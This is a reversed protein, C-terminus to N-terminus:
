TRSKKWESPTCHYMKKFATIFSKVNPFGQELACDTLRIDQSRKLQEMVNLLRVNQLYEYFNHGTHEKFLRSLHSSSYNFEEAVSNLSIQEQYHDDIYNVVSKVNNIGKVQRSKAQTDEEICYQGLLRLLLFLQEMMEIQCYEGANESIIGFRKVAERIQRQAEEDQPYTLYIDKKLWTDLFSKSILVTVGKYFDDSEVWTLSHMDGSNIISWDGKKMERSKGDVKLLIWGELALDIEISRHWHLPSYIEKKELIHNFVRIPVRHYVYEENEYLEM